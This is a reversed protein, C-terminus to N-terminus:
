HGIRRSAWFSVMRMPRAFRAKATPTKAKPRTMKRMLLPTTMKVPPMTKAMSRLVKRKSVRTIMLVTATVRTVLPRAAKPPMLAKKLSQEDDGKADADLAVDGDTGSTLARGSLDGLAVGDADTSCVEGKGDTNKGEAKDNEEDAATDGNGKASAKGDSGETQASEGDHEANGNKGDAEKDNAEVSEAQITGLTKLTELEQQLKCL